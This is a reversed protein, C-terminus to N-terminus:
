PQASDPALGDSPPANGSRRLTEELGDKARAYEPDLRLAERYEAIADATRGTAALATALNAHVDAGTAGLRLALEFSAIARRRRGTQALAIGLVNHAEGSRPQLDVARRAADVAPAPQNGQILAYALGMWAAADDPGLRVAERYTAISEDIRGNVLLAYALNGRPAEWAPALRCAERYHAIASVVRDARMLADGYESEVGADGPSRRQTQAYQDLAQSYRGLRVLARALNLHAAPSAPRLRLSAELHPLAESARGLQLLDYGLKNEIAPVDDPAAWGDNRKLAAEDEAVAEAFRGQQSYLIGLNYRARANDPVKAVTDQWLGVASGYTANRSHTAWGLACAPVLWAWLSRRGFGVYAATVALVSVAALPLYMRHEAMTESNIPVFSSSPALILFFWAGPIALPSRRWLSAVTGGALATLLLAQPWVAAFRPIVRLGYDFVLPSPWVSLRLYHVLAYCQTQFYVVPSLGAGFGVTGGRGRTSAILAALLVWTSALGLYLRWRLKWADALGHDRSEGGLTVDYVLVLLPAAAMVEKSAMGLLCAAWSALRWARVGRLTGAELSRIFGYLTLLCFLGALSEARQSTYAVAATALPHLMWLGAVAAALFSADRGFRGRLRPRLFTRRVVGFLAWAALIHILLNVAHYSWVADGSIAHNVAFTLNVVPRGSVTAGGDAPNLVRTLPWLRGLSANETISDADDFVFPASFTNRYAVLAALALVVAVLISTRRPSSHPQLDSESPIVGDTSCSDGFAFISFGGSLRWPQASVTM